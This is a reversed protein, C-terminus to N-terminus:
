FFFNADQSQETLNAKKKSTRQPLHTHGKGSRAVGKDKQSWIASILLKRSIYPKNRYQCRNQRIISFLQLFYRKSIINSQPSQSFLMMKFFYRLDKEINQFFRQQYLFLRYMLLFSKIEAKLRWFSLPTALDPPHWAQKSCFSM